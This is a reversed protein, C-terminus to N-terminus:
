HVYYKDIKVRSLPYIKYLVRPYISKCPYVRFRSYQRTEMDLLMKALCRPYGDGGEGGM